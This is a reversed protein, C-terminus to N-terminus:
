LGMRKAEACVNEVSTGLVKALREKAVMSWNRFILAQMPTPFYEPLIAEKGYKLYIENEM